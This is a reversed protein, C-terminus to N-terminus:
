DPQVTQYEPAAERDRGDVGESNILRRYRSRYDWAIWVAFVAGAFGMATTVALLSLLWGKGTASDQPGNEPPTQAADPTPKRVGPPNFKATGPSGGQAPYDPQNRINASNRVANENVTVEASDTNIEDHVVRQATNQEGAFQREQPPPTFQPTAFESAPSSDSPNSPWTASPALPGSESPYVAVAPEVAPFGLPPSNASNATKKATGGSLPPDTGAPPTDVSPAPTERPLPETGVVIRYSRIPPLGAPVDSSALVSDGEWGQLEQPALQIIYEIGGRPDPRWGVEVASVTSSVLLAVGLGILFAAHRRLPYCVRALSM